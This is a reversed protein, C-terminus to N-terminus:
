PRIKGPQWLRCRGATDSVAVRRNDVFCVSLIPAAVRSTLRETHYCCSGADPQHTLRYIEGNGTGAVIIRGDGSVDVAYVGQEAPLSLIRRLKGSGTDYAILGPKDGDTGLIVNQQLQIIQEM